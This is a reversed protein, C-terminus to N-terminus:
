WHQKSNSSLFPKSRSLFTPNMTKSNNNLLSVEIYQGWHVSQCKRVLHRWDAPPNEWCTFHFTISQYSKLLLGLQALVVSTKHGRDTDWVKLCSKNVLLYRVDLIRLHNTCLFDDEIWTPSQRLTVDRSCRFCPRDQFHRLECRHLFQQSCCMCLRFSWTQAYM